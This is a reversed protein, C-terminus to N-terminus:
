TWVSNGLVGEAAEPIQCNRNGPLDVSSDTTVHLKWASCVFGRDAALLGTTASKDQLFEFFETLYSGQLRGPAPLTGSPLDAPLLQVESIGIWPCWLGSSTVAGGRGAATLHAWCGIGERPSKTWSNQDVHFEVVAPFFKGPLM